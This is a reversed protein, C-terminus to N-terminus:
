RQIVSMCNPSFSVKYKVQGTCLTQKCSMLLKSITKNKERVKVSFKSKFVISITEFAEM